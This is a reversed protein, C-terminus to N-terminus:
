VFLLHLGLKLPFTNLSLNSDYFDLNGQIRMYVKSPHCKAIQINGLRKKGTILVLFLAHLNGCHPSNFVFVIWLTRLVTGPM